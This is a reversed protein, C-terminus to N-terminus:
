SGERVAVDLALIDGGSVVEFERIVVATGVRLKDGDFPLKGRGKTEGNLVAYKRDEHPSDLTVVGYHPSLRFWTTVKGFLEAM